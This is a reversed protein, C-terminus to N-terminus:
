LESQEEDWIATIYETIYGHWNKPRQELAEAILEKTAYKTWYDDFVSQPMKGATKARRAAAQMEIAKAVNYKACLEDMTVIGADIYSQLTKSTPRPAQITGISTKGKNIAVAHVSYALGDVDVINLQKAM